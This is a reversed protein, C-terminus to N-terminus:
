LHDFWGIYKKCWEASDTTDGTSLNHADVALQHIKVRDIGRILKYGKFKTLDRTTVPLLDCMRRQQDMTPLKVHEVQWRGTKKIGFTSNRTMYPVNYCIAYLDGRGYPCVEFRVHTYMMLLLGIIHYEPTNWTRADPLKIMMLTQHHLRPMISLLEGLLSSGADVGRAPTFNHLVIDLSDFWSKSEGAVYTAWEASGPSTSNKMNTHYTIALSEKWDAPITEPMNSGSVHWDMSLHLDSMDPCKNIYTQCGYIISRAATSDMETLWGRYKLTREKRIMGQIFSGLWWGILWDRSIPIGAYAALPHSPTYLAEHDSTVRPLGTFQIPEHRIRGSGSALAIKLTKEEDRVVDAERINM